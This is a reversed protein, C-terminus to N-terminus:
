AWKWENPLWELDEEKETLVPEIFHKLKLIVESFESSKESHIKRLFIRWKASMQEIYKQEYLLVRESIDTQRRVFTAEIAERLKELSFNNGEALFRIDFFDKMRSNATGLYVMAQLKEAIVSELPYFLLHPSLLDPLITPFSKESFGAPIDDGFGIDIQIRSRMKGLYAPLTFRLGEYETDEKLVQINLDNVGFVVGDRIPITCIEEIIKKLTDASNDIKTGLMDIDVTPRFKSIHEALLLLGGKLIFHSKYESISLRALFREQFFSNLVANFNESTEKAYTLLRARVSAEINKVVKVKM